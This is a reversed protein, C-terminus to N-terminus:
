SYWPSQTSMIFNSVFPKWCFLKPTVQNITPPHFLVLLHTPAVLLVILSHALIEKLTRVFLLTFPSCYTAFMVMNRGPLFQDNIFGLHLYDEFIFSLDTWDLQKFQTWFIIRTYLFLLQFILLILIRQSAAFTAAINM